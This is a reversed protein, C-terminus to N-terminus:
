ESENGGNKDYSAVVQRAMEIVRTRLSEPELVEVRPGFGL